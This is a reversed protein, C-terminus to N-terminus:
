KNEIKIDNENNNSQIQEESQAQEFSSDRSENKKTKIM